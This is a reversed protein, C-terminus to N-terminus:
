RKRRKTSNSSKSSKSSTPSSSSSGGVSSSDSVIRIDDEATMFTCLHDIHVNGCTFWFKDSVTKDSRSRAPFGCHCTIDGVKVAARVGGVGGETAVDYAEKLKHAFNAVNANAHHKIAHEFYGMETERNVWYDSGYDILTESAPQHDQTTIMVTFPFGKIYIQVLDANQKPIPGASRKPQNKIQFHNAFMTENGTIKGEGDRAM